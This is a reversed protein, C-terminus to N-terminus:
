APVEIRRRPFPGATEAMRVNPMTMMADHFEDLKDETECIATAVVYGSAATGIVRWYWEFRTDLPKM